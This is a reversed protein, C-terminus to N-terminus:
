AAFKNFVKGGVDFNRERVGGAVGHAVQFIHCLECCSIGTTFKHLLRNCLDRLSCLTANNSLSESLLSRRQYVSFIASFPGCRGGRRHQRGTTCLRNRPLRAPHTPPTDPTAAHFLRGDDYSPIFVFFVSFGNTVTCDIEENESLIGTIVTNFDTHLIALDPQCLIPDCLKKIYVSAYHGLVELVDKLIPLQCFFFSTCFKCLNSVVSFGILIM